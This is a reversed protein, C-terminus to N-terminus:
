KNKKLNKLLLYLASHDLDAHGKAVTLEYLKKITKSIPLNVNYNKATEIINNMDKLQTSCKGGAEFNKNIMRQGHIELIKSGAFGNKIALRLAKADVGAAEAMIIAEAVAGITIGVITQNALKAIQGSGTKGLYTPNGMSKLLNKTKLFIKKQGGVMIALQGNKAALTGGSVPADLFFGGKRRIKKEIEIATKQKTSSMDILIQGKKIKKTIARSIDLCVKDNSLMMIIIQCKSPMDILNRCINIKKNKIKKLNKQSRNWIVLPYNNKAINKVMPLGMLGVGIFGVKFKNM